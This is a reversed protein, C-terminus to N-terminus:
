HKALSFYRGDRHSKALGENDILYGSYFRKCSYPDDRHSQLSIIGNAPQRALWDFTQHAPRVLIRPFFKLQSNPLIGYAHQHDHWGNEIAQFFLHVDPKGFHRPMAPYQYIKYGM